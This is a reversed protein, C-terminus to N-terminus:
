INALYVACCAAVGATETRLRSTGLHVPVYGADAALRVEEETFDGEPGILILFDEGRGAVATMAQREVQQDCCAILKRGSSDGSVFEAITIADNLRPLYSKLSQKM